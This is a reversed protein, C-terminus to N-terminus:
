SGRSTKHELASLIGDAFNEVMADLTFTASARLCAAAFASRMGEDGLLSVIGAAFSRVDNKTIVGNKGPQLYEIEPSHGHMDTTILPLGLAFSDLVVLGVLGPMLLLRCGKAVAVKAEGFMPGLTHLWPRSRALARLEAEQPGTGVVVLEFSPLQAAVLDGAEILFRLRKEAYLAGIYLCTLDGECGLRRLALRGDSPTMTASISQLEGTDMANQVVTTHSPSFGLRWVREASGQTYAFFWCAQKTYWRKSREALWSLVSGDAQLNAGHGWFAVPPGGRRHRRLLAYNLLLRSAQEVIILDADYTRRYAPQWCINKRGRGVVINHVKEGWPIAVADKKVADEGIPQGYILRLEVGHEGLRQRLRNYFAERYAPVHRYVIYVRPQSSSM